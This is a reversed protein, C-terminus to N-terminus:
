NSDNRPYCEMNKLEFGAMMLESRESSAMACTQSPKCQVSEQKTTDIGFVGEIAVAFFLLLFLLLNRNM